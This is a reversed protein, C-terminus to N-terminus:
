PSVRPPTSPLAQTGGKGRGSLPPSTRWRRGGELYISASCLRGEVLAGACANEGSFLWPESEAFDRPVPLWHKSLGPFSVTTAGFTAGV